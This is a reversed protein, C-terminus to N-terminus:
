ILNKNEAIVAFYLCGSEIDPVHGLSVTADTLKQHRLVEGSGKRIEQHANEDVAEDEKTCLLDLM